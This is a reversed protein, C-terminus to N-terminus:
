GLPHKYAQNVLLYGCFISASTVILAAIYVDM